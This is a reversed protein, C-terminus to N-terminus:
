QALIPEVERMVRVRWRTVESSGNAIRATEKLVERLPWFTVYPDLEFHEPVPGDPRRLLHWGTMIDSRGSEVARLAAHGLRQAMLRDSASPVGGRCVHGLVTMRTEVHNPLSSAALRKDLQEKLYDASIKVGESKIVVVQQRGNPDYAKEVIHVLRDLIQEADLNEERILVGDSESAIAATMALYGCDRGMVEIV